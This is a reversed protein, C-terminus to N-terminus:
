QLEEILIVLGRQDSRPLVRYSAPQRFYLTLYPGGAIDGEYIVETLGITDAYPPVVAERRPLADRDVQPILTPRLRIRLERGEDEPFHSLYQMPMSFAVELWAGRDDSKVEVQELIRDRVPEASLVLVAVGIVVGVAAILLREGVRTM